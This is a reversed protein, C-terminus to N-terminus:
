EIAFGQRMEYKEASQNCSEKVDEELSENEGAQRREM